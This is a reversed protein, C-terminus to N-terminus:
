VYTQYLYLFFDITILGLGACGSKLFIINYYLLGVAKSYFVGAIVYV